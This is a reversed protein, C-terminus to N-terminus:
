STCDEAANSIKTMSARRAQSRKKSIIRVPVADQLRHQKVHRRIEAPNYVCARTYVSSRVARRDNVFRACKLSSNRTDLYSSRPKFKRCHCPAPMVRSVRMASEHTNPDESLPLTGNFNFRRASAAERARRDSIAPLRTKIGQKCLRAIRFERKCAPREAAEVRYLSAHLRTAPSVLRPVIDSYNLREISRRLPSAARSCKERALKRIMPPFPARLNAARM